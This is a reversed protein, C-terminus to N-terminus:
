PHKAPQWWHSSVTCVTMRLPMSPTMKQSLVQLMAFSGFRRVTSFSVGWFVSVFILITCYTGHRLRRLTMTDVSGNHLVDSEVSVSGLKRKLPAAYVISSGRVLSFSTGAFNLMMRLQAGAESLWLRSHGCAREPPAIPVMPELSAVM